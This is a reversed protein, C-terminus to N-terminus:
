LYGTFTLNVPLYNVSNIALYVASVSDTLPKM